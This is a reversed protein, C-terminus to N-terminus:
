QFKYRIIVVGSGGNGGAAPFGGTRNSAGGGGGGRNTAGAVGCHPPAGGIAGGAGGSGGPSAAGICTGPNQGGGGAGGAYFVPSGTISNNIDQGGPGAQSPSANSGNGSIGGGGGNGNGSANGGNSGQPPSVSPTNGSGGPHCTPGCRSGGGGSGGNGGVSQGGGAGGGASTISLASSACGATGAATPNGATRGAGGGGVVVPYSGPSSSVPIASVPAVIPGCGAAYCNTATGSSGRFGGGGGGAGRDVGGGGGGGGGVVIYDVVALPGSGATVEFTGPGTFTHVKFNTCVTTITGGTASIFGPAAESQLGSDTVLWGRTSDIFVLTVAIGEESLVANNTSGGIKDSGNQVLTLAHTDFSNLYDKFAVVAGATGAPLNVSVAGSSTDVFYGEGAVATFGSTKVTTTWSASGTAGFNTATGQNNITAGSPITFTDGSDGLTVTTGSRPSIKNVKIESM